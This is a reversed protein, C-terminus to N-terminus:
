FLLSEYMSKLKKSNKIIDYETEVHIRASKAYQDYEKQGMDYFAKIANSLAIQNKEEVLKGTVDNLVEEPIDCHYTSIVPMGTAQADLLVVPAGGECDMEETYRSPHIFTHFGNLFQHLLGFDIHDITEVNKELNLRVVEELIVKKYGQPDGGVLTLRIGPCCEIAKAVAGLTDLHGKKPVFSAVQVLALEKTKKTRKYYRISNVDVGLRNVHIKKEPCGYKQLLKKGHNGECVFMDALSWMKKYKKIWSPDIFPKYEYDYGYFSVVYKCKMKKALEINNWGVMGFHAHIIHVKHNMAIYNFYFLRLVGLIFNIIKKIFGSSSVNMIKEPYDVYAFQKSYFNTHLFKECAIVNQVDPLHKILNYVWVQSPKLYTKFCHLVKM